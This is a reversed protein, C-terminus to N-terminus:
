ALNEHFINKSGTKDCSGLVGCPMFPAFYSIFILLDRSVLLKLTAIACFSFRTDVEGPSWLFLFFDTVHVKLHWALSQKWNKKPM